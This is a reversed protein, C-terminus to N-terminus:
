QERKKTKVKCAFFPSNHEFPLFSDFTFTENAGETEQTTMVRAKKNQSQLLL